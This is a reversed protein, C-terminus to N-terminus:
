DSVARQVNAPDYEKQTTAIYDGPPLTVTGHEEHTVRAGGEGVRLYLRGDAEFMEVDKEAELVHAHGTAEGEALVFRKATKLSRRTGNFTLAGEGYGRIYVDGQRVSQVQPNVAM